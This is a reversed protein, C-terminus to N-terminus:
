RVEIKTVIFQLKDSLLYQTGAAKNSLQSHAIFRTLHNGQGTELPAETTASVAGGDRSSLRRRAFVRGSIHRPTRHTYRIFHDCHGDVDSRQNALRLHVNGCFPWKLEADHDGRVTHCAVSVHTSKGDLVGGPWVKICMKYGRPHTLFPRSTHSDRSRKLADYRDVTFSVPPLDTIYTHLSALELKLSEIETRLQQTEDRHSQRLSELEDRLLVAMAAPTYQAHAICRASRTGPKSVCNHNM